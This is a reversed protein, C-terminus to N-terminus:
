YRKELRLHEEDDKKIQEKLMDMDVRRAGSEKKVPTGPKVFLVPGLPASGFEYLYSFDAEVAKLDEYIQLIVRERSHRNAAVNARLRYLPDQFRSMLSWYDFTQFTEFTVTLSACLATWSPTIPMSRETLDETFKTLTLSRNNKGCLSIQTVIEHFAVTVHCIDRIKTPPIVPYGTHRRFANAPGCYERERASPGSDDWNSRMELSSICYDLPFVNSGYLLVSGELYLQRCVRLVQSSLRISRQQEWEENGANELIEELSSRSDRVTSTSEGSTCSCPSESRSTARSVAASVKPEMLEDSSSRKGCRHLPLEKVFLNRLIPDRLEFPLTMLSPM